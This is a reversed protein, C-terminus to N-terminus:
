KFTENLWKQDEECLKSADITVIKGTDARKLSVQGAGYSVVTAEVKFKGSADSFTRQITTPDVKPEPQEIAPPAEVTPKTEVVPNTEIPTPMTVEAQSPEEPKPEVPQAPESIQEANIQNQESARRAAERAQEVAGTAAAGIGLIGALMGMGVVAFFIVGPFGVILGAIATGRPKFFLGIFSLFAGPICLAGCTLWGICSFILGALGFGNSKNEVNVVVHQVPQNM